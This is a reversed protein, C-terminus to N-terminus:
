VTWIMASILSYHRSIPSYRPHCRRDLRVTEALSQPKRPLRLYRNGTACLGSPVAVSAIRELFRRFEQHRHRRHLSGVVKGTAIDLAALLPPIGRPHLRSRM